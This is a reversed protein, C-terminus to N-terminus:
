ESYLKIADTTKIKREVVESSKEKVVQTYVLDIIFFQVMKSSISGTELISEGSFYGLNIDSIDKLRSNKNETVSIISAGNSKAINVAKIMEDTEGSHSIAVVVDEENMISAMMIMNHSSDLAMCNFGIRTFKYNSDEATM